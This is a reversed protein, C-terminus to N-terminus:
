KETICCFDIWNLNEFIKGIEQGYKGRDAEPESDLIEGILCDVEELKSRLEELRNMSVGEETKVAAGVQREGM